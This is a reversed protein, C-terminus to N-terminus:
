RAAAVSSKTPNPSPGSGTLTRLWPRMAQLASQAKLANGKPKVHVIDLFQRALGGRQAFDREADALLYGHEACLERLLANHQAVGHHFVRVEPSTLDPNLPMTMLVVEAGQTRADAALTEVNRRFYRASAPDLEGRMLGPDWASAPRNSLEMINPIVRARLHVYLDSWPAILRDLPNTSGAGLPVRWHSYDPLVAARMRPHVDNIAFHILVLDPRYDQLLLFWACVAEATTWGAIAGAFVEFDRETARELLEELQAPYCSEGFAESTSAGLVVIRPVGETRELPWEPGKFGHQNVGDRARANRYVTHASREYETMTGDLLFARHRRIRTEVALRPELLRFGVEVAALAAICV